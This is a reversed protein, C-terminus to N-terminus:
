KVYEADRTLYHTFVARGARNTGRVAKSALEHEKLFAICAERLIHGPTEAFRFVKPVPISVEAVLVNVNALIGFPKNLSKALVEENSFTKYAARPPKGATKQLRLELVLQSLQGCKATYDGPLQNWINAASAAINLETM